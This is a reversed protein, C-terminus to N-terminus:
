FGLITDILLILDSIDVISDGNVDACYIQDDSYEILDLIIDIMIIIDSIDIITDCNIDGYSEFCCQNISNDIWSAGYITGHNQNGSHDFLVNGNSANFKYLSIINQENGNLLNTNLNLIQNESLATDYIVINDIKGDIPIYGGGNNDGIRTYWYGQQGDLPPGSWYQNGIVEISNVLNGDVYLKMIQGNYTGVVDYWQNLAVSYYLDLACYGSNTTYGPCNQADTGVYFNLEINNNAPNNTLRIYSSMDHNRNFYIMRGDYSNAYFSLAISYNSNYGEFPPDLSIYDDIGNFNLSYNGSNHCSYDCSDDHTNADINYNCALEDTCGLFSNENQHYYYAGIDARTGDPDLPSNPDGTDICPSSSQLYFNFNEQDIFQPNIDILNYYDNVNIIGEVVHYLNGENNWIVTNFINLEPIQSNEQELQIIGRNQLNGYITANIINTEHPNRLSFAGGADFATNNTILSHTFNITSYYSFFGGGNNYSENNSIHSNFIQVNSHELHIGAGDHTAINDIIRCNELNLDSEFVSIGGGDFGYGNQITLNSLSLYSSNVVVTQNNNGGDIRTDYQNEGILIINKENFNVNEYYTGSSVFISDGDISYDIAEQITSFENPVSHLNPNLDNLEWTAGNITGHNENGSYDVVRDSYPGENFKFDLIIENNIHLKLNDLLCRSYYTLDEEAYWFSNGITVKETPILTMIISSSQQSNLVGDIYLKLYSLDYDFLISYKQNDNLHIDSTVCEYNNINHICGRIRNDPLLELRFSKQKRIIMNVNSNTTPIFSIPTYDITVSISNGALNDFNNNTIEVYDDLGDFSLSYDGNNHCTYDCSDDSETAEENYNCALEDTCGQYNEILTAGGYINGHNDNGSFDIAVNPVDGNSGGIFKYSLLTYEDIEFNRTPSFNSQYRDILCIQIEDITCEMFRTGFFDHGSGIKISHGNNLDFNIDTNDSANIIGDIYLNYIGNIDRTLAVHHWEDDDIRENSMLDGPGSIAVKGYHDETGGIYIGWRRNDGSIEYADIINTQHPFDVPSIKIWTQITYAFGTLNISQAEIWDDVGDFSLSFDGNDNYVCSGDDWNSNINYNIAYPDTCGYTLINPIETSWEAGYILGHNNNGSNDNLLNETESDFDWFAILNQHSLDITNIMISHLNEISLANNWLTIDSLSGQWEAYDSNNDRIVRGISLTNSNPELPDNEFKSYVENGNVYLRVYNRDYTVAVFYWTNLELKISDDTIWHDYNYEDSSFGFRLYGETSVCFQYNILDDGSFNRKALIANAELNQWNSGKIWATITIGDIIDLSNNDSIAIYDNLGDFSLSYDQCYIFAFM